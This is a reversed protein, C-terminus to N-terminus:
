QGEPLLECVKLEQLAGPPRGILGSLQKDLKERQGPREYGCLTLFSYSSLLRRERKILAQMPHAVQSDWVPAVLIVHDYDGVDKGLPEIKPTRLFLVDMVTTLGTRRRTEVIESLECNLREAVKTALLRNNGTYSFYVVLFRM